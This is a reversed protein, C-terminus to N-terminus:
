ECSVDGTEICCCWRGEDDQIEYSAMRDGIHWELVDQLDSLPVARSKWCVYGEYFGATATKEVIVLMCKTGMDMPVQLTIEDVEADKGKNVSLLWAEDMAAVLYPQWVGKFLCIGLAQQIYEEDLPTNEYCSSISISIPLRYRVRRTSLPPHQLTRLMKANLPEPAVVATSGTHTNGM